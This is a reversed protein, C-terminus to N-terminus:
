GAKLTSERGARAMAASVAQAVTAGRAMTVGRAATVARAMAAPGRTEDHLLAGVNIGAHATRM